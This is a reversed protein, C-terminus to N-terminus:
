KNVVCFTIYMIYKHKHLCHGAYLSQWQNHLRYLSIGDGRDGSFLSNGGHGKVWELCITYLNGSRNQTSNLIHITCTLNSTIKDKSCQWMIVTVNCHVLNTQRQFLCSHNNQISFLVISPLDVSVEQCVHLVFATCAEMLYVMSSLRNQFVVGNAMFIHDRLVPSEHCHNKLVPKVTYMQYWVIYVSATQIASLYWVQYLSVKGPPLTLKFSFPQESTTFQLILITRPATSLHNTGTSVPNLLIKQQWYM